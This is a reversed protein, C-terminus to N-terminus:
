FRILRWNYQGYRCADGYRNQTGKNGHITAIFERCPKKYRYYTSIVTVTGSTNTNSNYWSSSFGSKSEELAKQFSETMLSSSETGLGVTLRHNSCAGLLLFSFLLLVRFM